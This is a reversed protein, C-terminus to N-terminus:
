LLNVSLNITFRDTTKDINMHHKNPYLLELRSRILGMGLGSKESSVLTDAGYANSCTFTIADKTANVNIAIANNLKKNTCHKFANEIFPIFLMPAIQVNETDGDINFDVFNPNSTRIKQLEIYQDIYGIEKALPITEAPSEYLTFRLIDSLKKLYASATAPDKEILVDINNLTNFLFHPNIQAKLLELSTERNKKELQWRYDREAIWNIFGRMACAIMGAILLHVGSYIGMAFHNNDFVFWPINRTVYETLLISLGTVLVVIVIAYLVFQMIKRQALYKPFLVLYFFYFIILGSINYIISQRLIPASADSAGTHMQSIIQIILAFSPMIYLAQLLASLWFLSRKM